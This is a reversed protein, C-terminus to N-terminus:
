HSEPHKAREETYQVYIIDRELARSGLIYLPSIGESSQANLDYGCDGIAEDHLLWTRRVGLMCLLSLEAGEVRARCRLELYHVSYPRRRMGCAGRTLQTTHYLVASQGRVLYRGRLSSISLGLVGAFPLRTGLYCLIIPWRPTCETGQWADGAAM